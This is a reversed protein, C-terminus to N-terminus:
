GAPPSGDSSRTALGELLRTFELPFVFKSAPSEGLAKLTEFYQLTM